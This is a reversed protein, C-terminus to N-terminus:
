SSSSACPRARRRPAPSSARRRQASPRAAPLSVFGSHPNVIGSANGDGAGRERGRASRSATRASPRRGGCTRSPTAPRRAPRAPASTGAASPQARLPTRAQREDHQRDDEVGVAVDRRDEAVQAPRRPQAGIVSSGRRRRRQRREERQRLRRKRVRREGRAARGALLSQDGRRLDHPDLEVLLHLEDGAPQDHEVRASLGQGAHRLERRSPHGHDRRHTTEIPAAVGHAPPSQPAVAM